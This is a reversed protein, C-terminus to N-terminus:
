LRQLLAELRGASDSLGGPRNRILWIERYRTIIDGLQAALRAKVPAPLQATGINGALIRERGLELALMAMAGNISFEKKVLEADPRSMRSKEVRDLADKLAAMAAEASATTMPKLPGGAPSGQVANLLLAYYVSNNGILVGTKAHANGLDLVAQGMQGAADMFVHTDLAKALPIALNTDQCWSLAAGYAFPAFSVPLSQWHGSDGWDTLLFGIAGNARGNVAANRLNELANDTRGLLSNWSSTGPVVYFPIGSDAFKKGHSAFPHNAEYGWEMAIVGGPIEPILAPYQMIIDGWFQMTRGHAGVLGHIEKLFNLYVRGTGLKQVAEKSRGKGISFTEDCGVNFQKSSFNPLLDDFLGRLFEVSAPDVPCLDGAGPREALHAYAPHQLWRGMHGFSNQNPVLEIFRDRCYADFARIEEPTMPSAEAWVTEHGRYAFTHETYLQIQNFKLEAFFDALQCLTEMRPVKDRAVDLMVGRNPFDPWDEVRVQPLYPQPCQRKLQTLTQMAYFAGAQDAATIQIGSPSIELLYGQAHPMRVPDVKVEPKANALSLAGGEQFTIQRPQPLFVLSATDPMPANPQTLELDPPATERMVERATESGSVAPAQATQCAALFLPLTLLLTAACLTRM